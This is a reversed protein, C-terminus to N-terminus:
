GAELDPPQWEGSGSQDERYVCGSHARVRAGERDAEMWAQGIDIDEGCLTCSRIEEM